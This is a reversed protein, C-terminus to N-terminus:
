LVQRPNELVRAIAIFVGHEHSNIKGLEVAVECREVRDVGSVETLVTRLQRRACRNTDRFETSTSEHFNIKDRVPFALTTAPFKTSHAGAGM